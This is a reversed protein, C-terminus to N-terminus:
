KEELSNVARWYMQCEISCFVPKDEPWDDPLPVMQEGREVHPMEWHIRRRECGPGDCKRTKM